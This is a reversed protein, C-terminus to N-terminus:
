SRVEVTDDDSAPTGNGAAGNAAGAGTGAHADAGPGPAGDGDEDAQEAQEALEGAAALVTEAPAEDAPEEVRVDALLSPVVMGRRTAIKRLAGDRLDALV